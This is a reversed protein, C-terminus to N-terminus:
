EVSVNRLDDGAKRLVKAIDEDTMIHGAVPVPVPIKARYKEIEALLKAELDDSDAATDAFLQETTMGRQERKAALFEDAIVAIQAALTSLKLVVDLIQESDPMKLRAKLTPFHRPYYGGKIKWDEYEVPSMRRPDIDSETVRVERVPVHYVFPDGQIQLDLYETRTAM